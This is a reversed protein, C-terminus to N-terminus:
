AGTRVAHRGADLDSVRQPKVKNTAAARTRGRRFAAILVLVFVLLLPLGGLVGMQLFHNTIDTHFENAHIGTPM